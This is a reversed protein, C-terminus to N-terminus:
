YFHLTTWDGFSTVRLLATSTVKTETHAACAPSTDYVFIPAATHARYTDVLVVIVM